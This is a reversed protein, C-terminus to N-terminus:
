FKCEPVITYALTIVGIWRYNHILSYRIFSCKGPPMGRPEGLRRCVGHAKIERYKLIRVGQM